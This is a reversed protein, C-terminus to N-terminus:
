EPRCRMPGFGAGSNYSRVKISLVPRGHIDDIPIPATETRICHEDVPQLLFVASARLDTPITALNSDSVTEIEFLHTAGASISVPRRNLAFTSRSGDLEVYPRLRGDKSTYLGGILRQLDARANRPQDASVADLLKAYLQEFIGSEIGIRAARTSSLRPMPRDFRDMWPKWRFPVWYAPEDPADSQLAFKIDASLLTSLVTLRLQDLQSSQKADFSRMANSCLVSAIRFAADASQPSLLVAARLQTAVWSTLETNLPHWRAIYELAAFRLAPADSRAYVKLKDLPVPVEPVFAGYELVTARLNPDENSSELIPRLRNFLDASSVPILSQVITARISPELERCREQAPGVTSFPRPAVMDGLRREFRPWWDASAASVLVKAAGDILWEEREGKCIVDILKAADTPELPLTQTPEKSEADDIDHALHYSILAASHYKDLTEQIEKVSASKSLYTETSSVIDQRAQDKVGQLSNWGIFTLLVAILGVVTAATKLTSLVFAKEQEIRKELDTTVDQRVIAVIAARDSDSIPV